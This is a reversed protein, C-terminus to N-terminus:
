HGEAERRDHTRVFFEIVMRALLLMVLPTIWGFLFDGAATLLTYTQYSSGESPIAMATIFSRVVPGLWALAAAAVALIWLPKAIARTGFRTIGFDTITNMLTPGQPEIPQAAPAGAPQQAPYSPQGNGAVYSASPASHPQAASSQEGPYAPQQPYASQQHQPYASAGYHQQQQGAAPDNWSNQDYSM